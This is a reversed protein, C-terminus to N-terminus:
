AKKKGAQKQLKTKLKAKRIKKRHIKKMKRSVKNKM